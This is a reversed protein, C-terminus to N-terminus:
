KMLVLTEMIENHVRFAAITRFFLRMALRTTGLKGDGLKVMEKSQHLIKYQKGNMEALLLNCTNTGLDIVAIRM